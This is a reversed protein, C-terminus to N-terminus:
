HGIVGKTSKGEGIVLPLIVQDEALVTTMAVEQNTLSNEVIITGEKRRKLILQHFRHLIDLHETQSIQILDCKLIRDILSAIEWLKDRQAVVEKSIGWLNSDNQRKLVWNLLNVVIQVQKENKTITERRTAKIDRQSNMTAQHKVSQDLKSSHWETKLWLSSQKQTVKLTMKTSWSNTWLSRVDM